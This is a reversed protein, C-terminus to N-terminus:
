EKIAIAEVELMYQKGALGDVVAITIVPETDNLYERIIEWFAPIVQKSRVFLTLKVVDSFTAGGAKLVETMNDLSRRVQGPIDSMPWVAGTVDHPAQGASYVMENIVVAHSYYTTPKHVTEPSLVQRSMM